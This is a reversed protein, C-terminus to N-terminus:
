DGVNKNWMITFKYLFDNINKSEEWYKKILKTTQEKGKDKGMIYFILCLISILIIEM